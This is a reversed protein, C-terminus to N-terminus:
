GEWDTRRRKAYRNFELPRTNSPRKHDKGRIIYKTAREVLRRSNQDHINNTTYKTLTNIPKPRQITKQQSAKLLYGHPVWKESADHLIQAHKDTQATVLLSCRVIQDSLTEDKYKHFGKVITPPVGTEEHAKDIIEQIPDDIPFGHIVFDSKRYPKITTPKHRGIILKNNIAEESEIPPTSPHSPGPTLTLTNDEASPKEKTNQPKTKTNQKKM